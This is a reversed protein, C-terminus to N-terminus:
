RSHLVEHMSNIILLICFNSLVCEVSIRTLLGQQQLQCIYSSAGDDYQRASFVFDHGNNDYVIVAFPEKYETQHRIEGGASILIKDYLHLSFVAHTLSSAM